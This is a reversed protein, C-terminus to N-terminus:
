VAFRRCMAELRAFRVTGHRGPRRDRRRNPTVRRPDTLRIRREDAFHSFSLEFNPWHPPRGEHEQGLGGPLTVPADGVVDEV